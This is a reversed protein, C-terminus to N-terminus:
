NQCEKCTGYLNLQSHSLIFNNSVKNIDLGFNNIDKDEINNCINCILHIHDSKKLEYYSKNRIVPVELVVSKKMM